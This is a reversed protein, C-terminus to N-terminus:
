AASNPLISTMERIWARGEVGAFMQLVDSMCAVARADVHLHYTVRAEATTKQKALADQWGLAMEAAKLRAAASARNDRFTTEIASFADSALGTARELVEDSTMKAHEPAEGGLQAQFVPDEQIEAWIARPISFIDPVSDPACGSQIATAIIAYRRVYRGDM